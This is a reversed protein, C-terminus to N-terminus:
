SNDIQLFVNLMDLVPRRLADLHRLLQRLICSLTQNSQCCQTSTFSPPMHSRTGKTRKCPAGINICATCVRVLPLSLLQLLKWPPASQKSPNTSAQLDVPFEYLLAGPVTCWVFQKFAAELSCGGAAVLSGTLGTAESSVDHMATCGVVYYCVVM